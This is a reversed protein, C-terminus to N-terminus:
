EDFQGDLARLEPPMCFRRTLERNTVIFVHESGDEAECGQLCRYSLFAQSIQEGHEDRGSMLMISVVEAEGECLDCSEGKPDIWVPEM